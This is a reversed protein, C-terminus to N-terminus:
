RRLLRPDLAQRLGDGLLNLGLVTTFIAAGPFFSLWPAQFMYQYGVHLMSGWSSTPPEVGLGLFSLSAEVVIAMAMMLSAQVIVPATVNPWIHLLMIRWPHAGVARAALVFDRERVSLTQGRVLRAFAPTFVVGVALMANILGPGLSAAIALALVLMPFSYLADTVRMLLDDVWGGYFGAVLGLLVGVVLSFGVAVMGAEVSVRSGHIIRSLVDRGLQDTGLLHVRSPSALVDSPEGLNPKYPSILDASIAALVLLILVVLGFTAGRTQLVRKLFARAARFREEGRRNGFQKQSQM